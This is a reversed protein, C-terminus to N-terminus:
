EDFVELIVEDPLAGSLDMEVCIRAFSTYKGRKTAESAKIFRRLKNGIASLSKLQWYDLPLSYLRVWISVSTFTERELVFNVIWHKMYMGAVAYFYPGGEFVKDEYIIAYTYMHDRHAQLAPDNLVIRPTITTKPKCPGRQTKDKTGQEKDVEKSEKNNSNEKSESEEREKERIRQKEAPPDRDEEVPKKGKSAM